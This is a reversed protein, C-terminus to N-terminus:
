ILLFTLHNASGFRITKKESLDGMVVIKDNDQGGLAVSMTEFNLITYKYQV